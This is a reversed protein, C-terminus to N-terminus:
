AIGRFTDSNQSVQKGFAIWPLFPHLHWILTMSNKDHKAEELCFRVACSYSLSEHPPHPISIFHWTKRESIGTWLLFLLPENGLSLSLARAPLHNHHRRARSLIIRWMLCCRASKKIFARAFHKIRRKPECVGALWFLESTFQLCAHPHSVAPGRIALRLRSHASHSSTSPSINLPLPLFFFFFFSFVHLTGKQVEACDNSICIVTAYQFITTKQSLHAKCSSLGHKLGRCERAVKQM